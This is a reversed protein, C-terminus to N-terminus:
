VNNNIFPISVNDIGSKKGRNLLTVKLNENVKELFANTGKLSMITDKLESINHNNKRKEDKLKKLAELLKQREIEYQSKAVISAAEIKQIKMNLEDYNKCQEFEQEENENQEIWEVLFQSLIINKKLKVNRKTTIM